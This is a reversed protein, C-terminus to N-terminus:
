PYFHEDDAWVSAVAKMDNEWEWGAKYQIIIALLERESYAVIKIIHETYFIHM